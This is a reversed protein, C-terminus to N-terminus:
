GIIARWGGYDPLQKGEQKRWRGSRGRAGLGELGCSWLRILHFMFSREGPSDFAGRVV